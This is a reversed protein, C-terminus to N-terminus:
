KIIVFKIISNPHAFEIEEYFGVVLEFKLKLFLTKLLLVIKLDFPLKEKLKLWVYCLIQYILHEGFAQLILGGM